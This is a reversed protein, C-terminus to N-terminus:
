FLLAPACRSDMIIFRPHVWAMAFLHETSYGIYTHFPMLASTRKYTPKRVPSSRAPSMHRSRETRSGLLAVNEEAEHSKRFWGLSTRGSKGPFCRRAELGTIDEVPHM